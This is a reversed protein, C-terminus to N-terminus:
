LGSLQNSQLVPLQSLEASPLGEDIGQIVVIAKGPAVPDLKVTLLWVVQSDDWFVGAQQLADLISKQANDADRPREDPPYLEIRVALPKLFSSQRAELVRQRVVKRYQWAEKSLKPRGHVYVLQHNFSPPYPLELTFMADQKRQILFVSAPEPLRAHCVGHPVPSTWVESTDALCAM